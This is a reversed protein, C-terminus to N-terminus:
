FAQKIFSIDTKGLLIPRSYSYFDYCDVDMGPSQRCFRAHATRCARYFFGPYSSTTALVIGFHILYILQDFISNNAGYCHMQADGCKNSAHRRVLFILGRRANCGHQRLTLGTDCRCTRTYAACFEGFRARGKCLVQM